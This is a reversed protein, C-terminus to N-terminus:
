LAHELVHSVFMELLEPARCMMRRVDEASPVERTPAFFATSMWVTKTGIENGQPEIALTYNVGEEGLFLRGAGGYAQIKEEFWGTTDRHLGDTIVKAATKENVTDIVYAQSGVVASIEQIGVATAVRTILEPLQSQRLDRNGAYEHGELRIGGVSVSRQSKMSDIQFAPAVGRSPDFTVAQSYSLPPELLASWDTSTLTTAVQALAPIAGSPVVGANVDLLKARELVDNNPM